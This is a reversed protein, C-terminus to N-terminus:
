VKSKVIELQSMPLNLYISHRIADVEVKVKQKGLHEILTGELGKMSGAIVRVRKGTKYDAEDLTIDEGTEIFVRIAEIQQERVPVKRNEFSIFRVVGPTNVVTYQESFGVCVFLYSTFLPLEVIKKRDSWIRERKILPLFHEIGERSLLEAVKKENRAKTYIAYWLKKEM